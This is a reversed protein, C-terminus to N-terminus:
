TRHPAACVHQALPSTQALSLQTTGPLVQMSKASQLSLSYQSGVSPTHKDLAVNGSQVYRGGIPANEGVFSHVYEGM